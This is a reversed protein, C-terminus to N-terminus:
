GPAGDRDITARLSSFAPACDALLAEDRDAIARAMARVTAEAIRWARWGDMIAPDFFVQGSRPPWESGDNWNFANLADQAATEAPPWLYAVYPYSDNPPAPNILSGGARCWWAFDTRQQSTLQRLAAILADHDTIPGDTSVNMRGSRPEVGCRAREM